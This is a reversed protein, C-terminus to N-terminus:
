LYSFRIGSDEEDGEKEELDAFQQNALGLDDDEEDEESDTMLELSPENLDAKQYRSGGAGSIQLTFLSLRTRPVEPQFPLADQILDAKNKLAKLLSNQTIDDVQIEHKDLLDKLNIMEQRGVEWLLKKVDSEEEDCLLYIPDHMTICIISICCYLLLLLFIIITAYAWNNQVSSNDCYDSFIEECISTLNGLQECLLDPYVQLCSSNSGPAIPTANFNSIIDKGDWAVVNTKILTIIPAVIMLGLVIRCVYIGQQKSRSKKLIGIWRQIDDLNSTLAEPNVPTSYATDFMLEEATPVAKEELEELAFLDIKLTSPKKHKGLEVGPDYQRLIKYAPKKNKSFM